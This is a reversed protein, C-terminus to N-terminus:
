HTFSVLEFGPQLTNVLHNVLDFFSDLHAKNNYLQIDPANALM